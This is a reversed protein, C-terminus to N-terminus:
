KWELGLFAFVRRNAHDMAERKTKFLTPTASGNVEVQWKRGLKTCFHAAGYRAWTNSVIHQEHTLEPRTNTNEM